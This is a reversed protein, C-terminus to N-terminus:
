DQPVCVCVMSGCKFRDLWCQKNVVGVQKKFDTDNTHVDTYSICHKLYSILYFSTIYSSIGQHM